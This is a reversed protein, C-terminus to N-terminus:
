YQKFIRSEKLEKMELWYTENQKQLRLVDIRLIRFLVGYITIVLIYLIGLFIKTNIIAFVDLAGSLKESLIQTIAFVSIFFILLYEVTFLNTASTFIFFWLCLGATVASAKFRPHSLDM